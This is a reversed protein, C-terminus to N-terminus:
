FDVLDYILPFIINIERLNQNFTVFRGELKYIITLMGYSKILQWVGGM